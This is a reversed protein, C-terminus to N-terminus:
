LSPEFLEPQVSAQKIMRKTLMIQIFKAAALGNILKTSCRYVVWGAVMAEHYKELDNEFGVGMVHRGGSHIGGEVEVALKYEPWAFDIKWKRTPHFLYERQPPPLHLARMQLLLTEELKSPAKPIRAKKPKAQSM